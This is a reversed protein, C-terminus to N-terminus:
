SGKSGGKEVNRSDDGLSHEPWDRQNRKKAYRFSSRLALVKRPDVQSPALSKEQCNMLHHIYLYGTRLTPSIMRIILKMSSRSTM